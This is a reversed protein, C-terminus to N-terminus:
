QSKFAETINASTPNSKIIDQIQTTNMTPATTTTSNEATPFKEEIFRQVNAQDRMKRRNIILGDNGDRGVLNGVENAVSGIGAKGRPTSFIPLTSMFGTGFKEISEATKKTLSNAKIAAFVLARMLGVSVLNIVLRSFRDM